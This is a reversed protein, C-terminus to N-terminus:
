FSDPSDEDCEDPHAVRALGLLKPVYACTVAPLRRREALDWFSAGPQALACSRGAREPTTPRSRPRGTAPARPTACTAFRSGPRAAPQRDDRRADGGARPAGDLGLSGPGSGGHRARRQPAGSELTPLFAVEPPLGAEDVPAPSRFISGAARWISSTIKGTGASRAIASRGRTSRASRCARSRSSPRRQPRRSRWV